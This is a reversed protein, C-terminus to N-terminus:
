GGGIGKNGEGQSKKSEGREEEESGARRTSMCKFAEETIIRLTTCAPIQINLNRLVLCFGHM